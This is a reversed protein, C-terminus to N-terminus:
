IVEFTKRKMKFFFIVLQLKLTQKIRAFNLNSVRCCTDTAINFEKYVQHFVKQLELGKEGKRM